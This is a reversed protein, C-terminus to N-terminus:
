GSRRNISRPFFVFNNHDDVMVLNDNENKRFALLDDVEEQDGCELRITELSFVKM